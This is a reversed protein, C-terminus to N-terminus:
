CKSDEKQKKLTVLKGEAALEETTPITLTKIYSLYQYVHMAFKSYEDPAVGCPNSVSAM